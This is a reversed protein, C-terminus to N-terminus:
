LRATPGIHVDLAEVRVDLRPFTNRFTAKILVPAHVGEAVPALWMHVPTQYGEDELDSPDYGAIPIYRVLCKHAEGEYASTKVPEVGESSLVLDYRLRSDFVPVTRECPSAGGEVTIALLASVPDLAELKQEATAPPDGLDGFPPKVDVVVDEPTYDFTVLRRKKDGVDDHAYTFPSLGTPEMLGGSAATVTAAEFFRLLGVSRFDAQAVYAGDAIDASLEAEVLRLALASGAYQMRLTQGDLDAVAPPEGSAATATFGAWLGLCLGLAARRLPPRSRIRASIM